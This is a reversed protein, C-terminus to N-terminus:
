FLAFFFFFFLSFYMILLPSITVLEHSEFNPGLIRYVLVKMSSIDRTVHFGYFLLIMSNSQYFRMYYTIINELKTLNACKCAVTCHCKINSSKQGTTLYKNRDIHLFLVTIKMQFNM